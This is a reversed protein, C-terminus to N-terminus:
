FNGTKTNLERYRKVIAEETVPLGARKQAAIIRARHDKPVSSIAVREVKVNGKADRTEINVYAKQLEEPTMAALPKSKDSGLFRPVFAKDMLVADIQKQKEDATLDKGGKATSEARVRRDIESRLTYALDPDKKHDIGATTLAGNVRQDDTLMSDQEGAAAPKRMAQQKAAFQELDSASLKISSSVLRYNKFAEEDNLMMDILRAHEAPDTKVPKNGQNALHEARQRLYDQLQVREKGDMNALVAEPVKKSQGVLQWAQDSFKKERAQNAMNQLGVQEKIRTITKERQQPDGIKAAESLQQELPLAALEAAKKTAFQNDNEAKLVSEVKPQYTAGVEAKNAQYYASAAAADVEALKSIHALHLSSLNKQQEAQVQKTDWGKRAGVEAAAKRVQEAAGAVDGTSVGFQITTAVNAAYTDDAHRETETASYQLVNGIAQTRKRALAPAALDRARRDLKGSYEESTKKWWEDAAAKYGGVNAGRYQQRAKADWELWATSIESDAANASAEAQTQLEREVHKDAVDGLGQIAQGMQQNARAQVSLAGADQMPAPLAARRVQNGEYTPVQPM